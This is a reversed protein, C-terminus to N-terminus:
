FELACPPTGVLKASNGLTSDDSSVDPPLTGKVGFWRASMSRSMALSVFVASGFIEADFLLARIVGVGGGM